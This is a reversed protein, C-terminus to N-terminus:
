DQTLVTSQVQLTGIYVSDFESTSGPFLVPTLVDPLILSAHVILCSCCLLFLL